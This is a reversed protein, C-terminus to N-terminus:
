RSMEPQNLHGNKENDNLRKQVHEARFDYSGKRLPGVPRLVNRIQEASVGVKRLAQNTRLGWGRGDTKIM